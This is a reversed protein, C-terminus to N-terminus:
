QSVEVVPGLAARTGTYWVAVVPVVAAAAAVLPSEPLGPWGAVAAATFLSAAVLGIARQGGETRAALAAGTFAPALPLMSAWFLPRAGAAPFAFWLTALLGVLPLVVPRPSDASRTLLGCGAAAIGVLTVMGFPAADAFAPIEFASATAIAAAVAGLLALGTVASVLRRRGPVPKPASGWYGLGAGSLLIGGAVAHTSWERWSAWQPDLLTWPASQLWAASGAVLLAAWALVVLARLMGLKGMRCVAAGLAWSAVAIVAGRAGLHAVVPAALAAVVLVGALEALAHSGREWTGDVTEPGAAWEASALPVGIFLAILLAGVLVSLGGTALVDTSAWAAVGLAPALAFPVTALPGSTQRIAHVPM